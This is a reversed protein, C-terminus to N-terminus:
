GDQRDDHNRVDHMMEQLRKQAARERRRRNYDAHAEPDSMIRRYRERMASRKREIERSIQDEKRRHYKARERRRETDPANARRERRWKSELARYREPNKAREDRREALRAARYSENAMRTAYGRRKKAREAEPHRERALAQAERWYRRRHEAVCADAGCTAHRHTKRPAGCQPCRSGRPPASM